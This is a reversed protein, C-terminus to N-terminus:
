NYNSQDCDRQSLFCDGSTGSFLAQGLSDQEREAAKPSRAKRRTQALSLDGTM